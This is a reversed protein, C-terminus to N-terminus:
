GADDDLCLSTIGNSFMNKSTFFNMLFFFFFLFSLDFIQFSGLLLM